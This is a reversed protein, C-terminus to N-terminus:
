EYCPVYTEVLKRFGNIGMTHVLYKMRANARIERNGHDRQAALIAKCLEMLDAKTEVFGLHDATRAFTTDKGHTRGMGGGVMVNYGKVAGTADDTLVVIGIDNIYIDISNDGPVTVGIKFKRPLYSKGYLPEVKDDVIIGNGRDEVYAAQVAADDIDKRWYEISAIKEKEGDKDQGWVETFASSQPKFLEAMIKTVERAGAYEPTAFPAPTCMVNRSVDGCAGVTSSGCDRLANIVTALNGKVVGHLQWAQRTTARLHGFGYERSLDDLKRHLEPPVEGGPVKLRLMFSFEKESGKPRREFIGAM